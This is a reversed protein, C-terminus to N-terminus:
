DSAHCVGPGVVDAGVRAPEGIAPDCDPQHAQDVCPTACKQFDFEPVAAAM